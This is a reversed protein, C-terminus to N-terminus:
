VKELWRPTRLRGTRITREKALQYQAVGGGTACLHFIGFGSFLHTGKNSYRGIAEYDERPTDATRECM